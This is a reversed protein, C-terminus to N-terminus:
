LEFTFPLLRRATDVVTCSEAGCLILRIPAGQRKETDVFVQACGGCPYVERLTPADNQRASVAVATITRGAFDSQFKYLLIREACMGSPFVESEQNSATLITGDDLRAAAGVRFGSYPSYSTGCAQRSFEVLSRDAEPLDAIPLHRYPIEHKLEM